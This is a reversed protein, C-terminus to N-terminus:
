AIVQLMRDLIEDAPNSIGRTQEGRIRTLEKSMRAMEQRLEHITYALAEFDRRYQQRLQDIDSFSSTVNISAPYYNSITTTGSVTYTGSLTNGLMGSNLGAVSQLGQLGQLGAATAQQQMAAQQMQQQHAAYQPSQSCSAIHVRAYEKVLQTVDNLKEILQKTVGM